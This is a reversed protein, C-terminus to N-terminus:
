PVALDRDGKYPKAFDRLSPLSKAPPPACSFGQGYVSLQKADENAHCHGPQHACAFFDSFNNPSLGERSKWMRIQKLNTFSKNGFVRSLDSEVNYSQLTLQRYCGLTKVTSKDNNTTVQRM